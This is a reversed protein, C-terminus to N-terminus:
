RSRPSRLYRAVGTLVHIGCIVPPVVLLLGSGLWFWSMARESGGLVTDPDYNLTWNGLVLNSVMGWLLGCTLFFLLIARLVWDLTDVPHRLRRRLGIYLAPWSVFGTWAVLTGVPFGDGRGGLKMELLPSATILLVVCGTFICFALMAIFRATM